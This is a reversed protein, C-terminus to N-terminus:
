STRVFPVACYGFLNDLMPDDAYMNCTVEGVGKAGLSKYHELLYGLDADASNSLARPDVNCFWALREPYLDSMYKNDESSNPAMLFEPSVGPLLVGKEINLKDYFQEFLEKPSLKAYGNRYKPTFQPFLSCHAHIDIKKIDEM